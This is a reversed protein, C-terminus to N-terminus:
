GTTQQTGTLEVIKRILLRNLAASSEPAWDLDPVQDLRWATDSPNDNLETARAAGRTAQNLLSLACGIGQDGLAHDRRAQIRVYRCPLQDIWAIPERVAWFTDPDHALAARATSPIPSGRLLVDRTAPGEWDLLFSTKLRRGERALVPAALSLGMSMSLVGVRDPLVNHRSHVFDLVARLADQGEVGCFDDHGWSRGRGVPDFHVTRIGAAALEDASILSLGRCFVSGAHDRGPVLVVAARPTEDDPEHVHLHIRYGSANTLWLAELRTSPGRLRSLWGRLRRAPLSRAIDVARTIRREEPLLPLM